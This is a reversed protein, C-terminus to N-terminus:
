REPEEELRRIAQLCRDHLFLLSDIVVQQEEPVPRVTDRQAQALQMEYNDLLRALEYYRAWREDNERGGCPEKTGQARLTGVVLLLTLALISRLM